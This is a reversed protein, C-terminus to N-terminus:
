RAPREKARPSLIVDLLQDFAGLLMRKDHRIRRPDGSAKAARYRAAKQAFYERAGAVDDVRGACQQRTVHRRGERRSTM